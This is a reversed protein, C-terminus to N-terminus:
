AAKGVPTPKRGREFALQLAESRSRRPIGGAMMKKLVATPTLGLIEAIEATSRKHEWYLIRIKEMEDHRLRSKSGGKPRLKVGRRILYRKITTKQSYTKAGIESLSMGAEVYMEVIEDVQEDTFIEKQGGGKPKRACVRLCDPCRGRRNKNVRVVEFRPDFLDRGCATRFPDEPDRRHRWSYKGAGGPVVFVAYYVTRPYSKRAM